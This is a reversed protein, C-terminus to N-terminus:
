AEPPPDATGLELLLRETREVMLDMGFSETARLRASRGLSEGLSQDSLIALTHRALARFDGRECLLGDRGHRVLEGVGGVRTAVVPLGCAM